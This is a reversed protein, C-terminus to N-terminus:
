AHSSSRNRFPKGLGWRCPRTKMPGAPSRKKSAPSRRKPSARRKASSRRKTASQKPSARRKPSAKRSPSRKASSYHSLHRQVYAMDRRITASMEPNKNKNFISLVNLRRIVEAYTAKKTEILNTLVARRDRALERVHYGPLSGRKYQINPSSMKQQTSYM